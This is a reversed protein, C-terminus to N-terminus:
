EPTMQKIEQLEQEGEGDVKKELKAKLELEKAQRCKLQAVLRRNDERLKAMAEPTVEGEPPQSGEPQEGEPEEGEPQEGEPQEGNILEEVDITENKKEKPEM